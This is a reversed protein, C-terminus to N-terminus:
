SRYVNTLTKLNYNDVFSDELFDLGSPKVLAM